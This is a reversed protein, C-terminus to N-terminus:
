LAHRQRFRVEDRRHQVAQGLIQQALALSASSVEGEEPADGRLLRRVGRNADRRPGANRELDGGLHVADILFIELGRDLRQEPLAVDLEDALDALVLLLFEQAIGGASM